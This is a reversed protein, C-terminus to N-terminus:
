NTVKSPSSIFKELANFADHDNMQQSPSKMYLASPAPLPGSIKHELALKACRIADIVVGASNPSDQVSLRMELEIPAGGFGEGELRIFAIKNDKQWPVYDSPGIHIDNAEMPTPLQSQVSNTKSKKKSVLREQSLMNLFDTNGGTNLQYTRKLSYGRKSFLDALMRHTITAGVQSKIDDGIIPLGADIFKQAWIKNSAIFVPMCNIFAVGADLCAQAYFKAAQESGVPMYNVLVEAKSDKLLQVIDDPPGDAPRFANEAPYEAMHPAVGDLVPGMAVIVEANKIDEQFVRTCNPQAFIAERLPLGIKRLDVDIACVIEIDNPSYQGIQPLMIGDYTVNKQESYYSIGQVLSSACNGIGAIALRIPSTKETQTM